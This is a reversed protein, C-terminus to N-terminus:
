AAAAAPITVEFTMGPGANRVARLEGGHAVVISRCISLGVGLGQPKTTYFPSFLRGLKEPAVGVGVDEVALLLRDAGRRSTRVVVASNRDPALPTAQLGNRVLNVVVQQLQTRNGHVPPLDSALVPQLAVHRDQAEHRVLALAEDVMENVDVPSKELAVKEALARVSDILRRARDSSAAVRAMTALARDIDPTERDLWRQSAATDIAIAALPQSIEHVISASMEALWVLRDAHGDDPDSRGRDAEDLISQTM